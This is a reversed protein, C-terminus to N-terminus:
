PSTTTGTATSTTQVHQNTDVDQWEAQTIDMGTGSTLRAAGPFTAPAATAPAAAGLWKDAQDGIAGAIGAAAGGVGSAASDQAGQLPNGATVYPSASSLADNEARDASGALGSAESGVSSAADNAKDKISSDLDNIGRKVGSFEDRAAQMMKSVPTILLAAPLNLLGFLKETVLQWVPFFTNRTILAILLPIQAFYVEMTMSNAGASRRATQLKDNVSHMAFELIPDIDKGVEDDLFSTAKRVAMDSTLKGLVPISQSFSPLLGMALGNLVSEFYKRGAALFAAENMKAAAEPNQLQMYVAGLMGSTAGIVKSLATKVFPPLDGVGLGDRFADFIKDYPQAFAAVIAATQAEGPGKAPESNWFNTWGDQIKKQTEEVTNYTKDVAGAADDIPAVGSNNPILQTPTYPADPTPLPVSWVDFISRTAPDSTGRIAELSRQYCNDRLVPEYVARMNQYMGEYIDFMKFLINTVPKIADMLGGIGVGGALAAVNGFLGGGSQANAAPSKAMDPAFKDFNCWAKHLDIGAQHIAKYQISATNITGGATEVAKKYPDLQSPDPGQTTNSGSLLDSVAGALQDIGGESDKLEQVVSQAATIFGDILIAERELAARFLIAHSGFTINQDGTTKRDDFSAHPFRDSVDTHVRGFHIFETPQKPDFINPHNLAAAGPTNAGAGGIPGAKTFRANADVMKPAPAASGGGLLNSAADALGSAFGGM